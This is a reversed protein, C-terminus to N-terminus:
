AADPGAVRALRDLQEATLKGSRFAEARYQERVLESPANIIHERYYEFTHM